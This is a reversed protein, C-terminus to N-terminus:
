FVNLRHDYIRGNFFVPFGKKKRATARTATPPFESQHNTKELSARTDRISNRKWFNRAQLNNLKGPMIGRLISNYSGSSSDESDIVLGVATSLPKSDFKECQTM